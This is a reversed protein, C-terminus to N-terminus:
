KKHPRDEIGSQDSDDSADRKRKRNGDDATDATDVAEAVTEAVTESPLEAQPEAVDAAPTAPEPTIPYGSSPPPTTSGTSSRAGETLFSLNEYRSAAAAAERELRTDGRDLADNVTENSLVVAQQSARHIRRCHNQKNEALNDVLDETASNTMISEKETLYNRKETEIQYYTDHMEGRYDNTPSNESSAIYPPVDQQLKDVFYSKVSSSESNPEASRSESDAPVNSPVNSPSNAKAKKNKDDDDDGDGDGNGDGPGSSSPGEGSGGSVEPSAPLDGAQSAFLPKSRVNGQDSPSTDSHHLTQSIYDELM